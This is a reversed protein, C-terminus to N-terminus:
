RWGRPRGRQPGALTITLTAMAGGGVGTMAANLIMRHLVGKARIELGELRSRCHGDLVLAYCRAWGTADGGGNDASQSSLSLTAASPLTSNQHEMLDLLSSTHRLYRGGNGGGGARDQGSGGDVSLWARMVLYKICNQRSPRPRLM